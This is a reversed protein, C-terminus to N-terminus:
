DEEAYEKAIEKCLKILKQKYKEERESETDHLSNGYDLCEYLDKYTLEFRCYSMNPM